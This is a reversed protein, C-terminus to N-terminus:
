RMRDPGYIGFSTRAARRMTVSRQSNVRLRPLAWNELPLRAFNKDKETKAQFESSLFLEWNKKKTM